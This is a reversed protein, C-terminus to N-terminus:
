SRSREEARISPLIADSTEGLDSEESQRVAVIALLCGGKKPAHVIAYRIRTSQASEKAVGDAVVATLGNIRTDRPPSKWVVESMGLEILASTLRTEVVRCDQEGTMAVFAGRGEPRYALWQADNRFRNWGAPIDVLLPVRSFRVSTEESAPREQKCATGTFSACLLLPLVLAARCRM